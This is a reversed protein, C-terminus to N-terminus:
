FSIFANEYYRPGVTNNEFFSGFGCDEVHVIRIIHFIISMALEWIYKYDSINIILNSLFM